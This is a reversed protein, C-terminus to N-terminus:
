DRTTACAQIFHDVAEPCSAFHPHVYSALVNGRRFGETESGEARRRRVRWAAAWDGAGAEVETMESYHFEHGRLRTGAPGFFGPGAPEAEVYGLAKRRALMRTWAPLIGAMAHRQGDRTEIGRALLMLGGCEAYVPRGSAAFCRIAELVPTNASLETAYEEPYGGGLYLGDLRDPLAQDALPSFRVWEAGRAEFLELCDPYYFHFARDYALGIRVRPKVSASKGAFMEAEGGAALHPASQALRIIPELPAQREFAAGLEDLTTQPLSQADATVLGLHRSALAPLSGRAVAGLLPPLGSAKLSEALWEGHRASGCQNALVGGIRLDPELRTYGLVLAALSRAMGHANVVLLVPADLWRAIEATSGENNNPNAGDFLGMVGEILAIDADAATRAFLARVYAEGTMWGDLNYCPRGSAQALHTPDLYDPGVKFTQVRLGRRRLAVTLALTLSTKGVGSGAGGIV